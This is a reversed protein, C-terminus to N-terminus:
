LGGVVEIQGPNRMQVKDFISTSNKSFQIVFNTNSTLKSISLLNVQFSPVFYVDVLTIDNSIPVDCKLSM